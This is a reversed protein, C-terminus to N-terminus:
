SLNNIIIFIIILKKQLIEFISLQKQKVQLLKRWISLKSNKPLDTFGSLFASLALKVSLLQQRWKVSKVYATSGVLLCCSPSWIAVLSWSQTGVMGGSIKTSGVWM